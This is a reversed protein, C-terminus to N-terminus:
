VLVKSLGKIKHACKRVVGFHYSKQFGDASICFLPGYKLEDSESGVAKRRFPFSMVCDMGDWGCDYTVFRAKHYVWVERSMLQKKFSKIKQRLSHIYDERLLRYHTGLYDSVNSYKM